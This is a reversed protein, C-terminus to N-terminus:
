WFPDWRFQDGITSTLEVGLSRLPALQQNSIRRVGSVVRYDAAVDAALNRWPNGTNARVDLSRITPMGSVLVFQLRLEQNREGRWTVTLTDSASVATMGLSPRYSTLACNMPDASAACSVLFVLFAVTAARM